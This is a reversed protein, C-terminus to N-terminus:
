RNEDFANQWGERIDSTLKIVEDLPEVVLRASADNLKWACHMYLKDMEHALSDQRELDLSASLGHLIRLCKDVSKEKEALRQHLIHSKVRCLEELLGDTLLLVLEVPSAGVLRMDVHARTYNDVAAYEM